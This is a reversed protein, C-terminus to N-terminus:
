FKVNDKIWLKLKTKFQYGNEIERISRPLEEWYKAVRWRWSSEILELRPRRGRILSGAAALRDAYRPRNGVLRSHLYVPHRTNIVKWAQIVSHYFVLQRVSLWNTEKLLDRIPHRRGRKCVARMAENQVVQLTSLLYDQCGGWASILYCLKSMFLGNALMLRVKFCAVKKIQLLAKLRTNLGRVLSKDNNLIHEAFKLNHDLHLGLLTEVRSTAQLTEGIQVQVDIERSKRLQSTTLIMTHTKSDNVKLLNATLFDSVNNYIQGVKVPLDEHSSSSISCSSDDAYSVIGGCSRCDMNTRPAWAQADRRHTLPCTELHVVEPLENTFMVYLLPGLISGQPVGVHIRLSSSLAGEVSVVQTRDSMYSWVWQRTHRSFGYYSLKQLLLNTDVCDFAASMDVLALGTVDKRELAEMWNDYMQLVATATSHNGRFGHHCPHFYSSRKSFDAEGTPNEMYQVMQMFIARELIKSLIPLLAVPRYSSPDMKDGKSKYLPVVKSIKYTSPFVSSEISLNVIHTIAPTIEKRILKLIFSDIHDVGSSRSNKMEQIIKSVTDPHVPNLHFETPCGNMMRKLPGLPDISPPPLAARIDTVKAIYYSNMINAMKYPSTEVRNMSWLKTPSSTSSWNLWGLINGWVKGSDGQCSELKQTQWESKALKIRGTIRNRLEKYDAWDVDSKSDVAKKQAKDRAEMQTKLDDSMWPAFNTRTQINRVPAMKDLVSTLKNTFICAAENADQSMYVDLLSLDRIKQVFLNEDFNKYSRKRTYRARECITKTFRTVLILRHDSYGRILARAESMKEHCNTFVLDITSDQHGPWSRTIGRVLQIVGQPLIRQSLEEALPRTKYYTSDRSDGPATSQMATNWDLNIDGLVITERQESLAKEWQTLFINWRSLQAAPSLSANDGGQGMNQWVRYHGGVLLKKHHKFGVELWISDLSSNMLDERLKGIVSEHKYIVIRSINKLDSNDITKSVFLEYNPIQVNSRDTSQKLNSESIVFIHPRVSDIVAELETIKNELHASGANWAALKLGKGAGRRNGFTIHAWSNSLPKWATVQM